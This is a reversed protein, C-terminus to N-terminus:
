RGAMTAAAIILTLVCFLGIAAFAGLFVMRKVPTNLIIRGQRAQEGSLVPRERRSEKM